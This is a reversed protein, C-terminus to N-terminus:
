SKPYSMTHLDMAMDAILDIMSLKSVWDKPINTFGYYAGAIQGTVAATTDADDGLNAAMLIADRFNTTNYFCWLSAELCDVVYGSSDIEDITKSKFKGNNIDLLRGKCKVSTKKLIQEKSEGEIARSLIEAFIQCAQVCEPSAHTTKSSEGVFYMMQPFDSQFALVAPALRMLSGNGAKKPDTSGSFPEGTNRFKMLSAQTTLGIDFCKGTSSMYGHEQWNCYRKMQDKPSFGGREILSAGLCLAMSTDDTWQGPKLRFPGGGIMDDIPEFTGREKFELTTGVADGTALGVLAGAFRDLKNM